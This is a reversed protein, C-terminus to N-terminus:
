HLSFKVPIGVWVAVPEGDTLAPKFLWQRVAEVAAQDLLPISNVVRVDSVEGCACVFAQVMVTGDVGAIRAADPYSPPVRVIPEPLEEVYVYAGPGDDRIDPQEPALCDGREVPGPRLYVNIQTTIGGDEAEILVTRASPLTLPAHYSGNMSVYGTGPESRNTWNFKTFEPWRPLIVHKGQGVEVVSPGVPGGSGVTESIRSRCGGTLFAALLVYRLHKEFM